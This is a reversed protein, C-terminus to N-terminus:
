IFSSCSVFGTVLHMLCISAQCFHLFSCLMISPLNSLYRMGFNKKWELKEEYPCGYGIIILTIIQQSSILLIQIILDNIFVVIAALLLRRLLFWFRFAIIWKTDIRMNEYLSGYKAKIKREHFRTYLKLM